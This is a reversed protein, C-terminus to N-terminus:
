VEAEYLIHTRKLVLWQWGSMSPKSLSFCEWWSDATISTFCEKEAPLLLLYGMDCKLLQYGTDAQLESSLARGCSDDSFPLEHRATTPSCTLGCSAECTWKEPTGQDFAQNFGLRACPCCAFKFAMHSEFRPGEQQSLALWQGVMQM